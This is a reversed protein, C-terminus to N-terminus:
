HEDAVRRFERLQFRKKFATYGFKKEQTKEILINAYLYSLQRTLARPAHVFAVNPHAERNSSSTGRM